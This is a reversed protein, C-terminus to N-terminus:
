PNSEEKIEKVLLAEKLSQIQEQMKANNLKIEQIEQKNREVTVELAAIKQKKEDSAGNIEKLEENIVIIKEPISELEAIKGRNEASFAKVERYDIKSEDNSRQASSTYHNYLGLSLFVIASIVAGGFTKWFWHPGESDAM